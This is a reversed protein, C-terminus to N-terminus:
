FDDSFIKFDVVPYKRFSDDLYEQGKLKLWADYSSFKYNLSKSVGHKIPNQHIYNFHEWFDKENRVCHDWYQYWVKEGQNGDLKNLLRATMSHLQNVFKSLDVSNKIRFLLHYHNDLVVWAYLKIQYKSIFINLCKKFINKAIKNKLPKGANELCRGTVFYIANDVFVHSPRHINRNKPLSTM